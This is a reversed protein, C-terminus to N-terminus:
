KIQVPWLPTLSMVPVFTGGKLIWGFEDYPPIDPRAVHARKDILVALASRLVHQLFGGETAPLMKLMVSKNNLFKTARVQALNIKDETIVQKCQVAVALRTAQRLLDDSLTLNETEGYDALAHIDLKCSASLWGKKSTFYPYSTIDRGSLSHIFPLALSVTDGLSQAILHIPLYNDSGSRVWVESLQDQMKFAYYICIVIVDTDSAHVVVRKVGDQKVSYIAHLILRTDAEEQTSQLEAVDVCSGETLLVSKTEDLFGGGLYLKRSGLSSNTVEDTSWKECLYALLRSKNQSVGFFHASDPAKFTDSVDYVKDHCQKGARKSREDSKLSADRYRDCCFHIIQAGQPVDKLLFKLYRDSVQAFNENPMFSLKRILHMADVVVATKVDSHPLKELAHVNTQDLIAKILTARSGTSRMRGDDDFLSPPSSSCEHNGIFQTVDVTGGWAIIQTMRLLASVEDSKTSMGKKSSHRVLSQSHFTKLKVIPTTKKDSKLALTLANMGINEVNTLDHQVEPDANQGSKINILHESTIQFPNIDIAAMVHNMM